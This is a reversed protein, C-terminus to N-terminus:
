RHKEEALDFTRKIQISDFFVKHGIQSHAFDQQSREQLAQLFHLTAYAKEPSCCIVEGNFAISYTRHPVPAAPRIEAESNLAQPSFLEVQKRIWVDLLPECLAENPIFNM